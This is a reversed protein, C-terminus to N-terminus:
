NVVLPSLMHMSICLDSITLIMIIIMMIYSYTSKQRESCELKIIHLPKAPTLMINRIDFITKM